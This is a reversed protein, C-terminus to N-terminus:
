RGNSLPLRMYSQPQIHLLLTRPLEPKLLATAVQGIGFRLLDPQQQGLAAQGAESRQLRYLPREDLPM